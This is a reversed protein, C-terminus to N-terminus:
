QGTRGGSANVFYGDPTTENSYMSGFPRGAGSAPNLYYWVGGIQLWGVLMNGNAPDLYYWRGDTDQYWGVRMGSNIDIYYWLGTRADLVWGNKAYGDAGFAWWANNIKVWSIYEQGASTTGAPYSGNTYRYWWKGSDSVWAGASSGNPGGSTSGGGSSGGSGSGGGSSGGSSSGGGSSGGSSSGCKVKYGLAIPSLSYVKFQIGESTAQIEPVEIEGAHDGTTFMHAVVFDYRASSTGSPYPLTVTIGEDPFQDEYVKQWNGGDDVSYNLTVDYILIHNETIGAMANQISKRMAEEIKATTNLDPNNRLTEPVESIGEKQETKFEPTTIITLIGELVTVDYNASNSTGTIPYTGVESDKGATTTLTVSLADIGDNGVLVGAAPTELTLVPNSNGVFKLKDEAKVTVPKKAVTVDVSAPTSDNHNVDGKRVATVKVTGAGIITAQSGSISLVKNGEPVSFEIQGSGSGGAAKLEFSADGYTKSDVAEMTMPADQNIKQIRWSISIPNSNESGDAEDWTNHVTDKLAIEVAYDGANTGKTGGTITMKNEDFGALDDATVEQETGNYTYTKGSVLTPKPVRLKLTTLATSDSVPEKYRDSGVVRQFFYYTTGPQLNTFLTSTQWSLNDKSDTTNMAYQMTEFNGNSDLLKAEKLAIEYQSVREAEPSPVKKQYSERSLEPGNTFQVGRESVINEAPHSQIFTWNEPDKNVITDAGLFLWDENEYGSVAGPEEPDFPDNWTVDVAYWKDEQELYVYNWMHPGPPDISSSAAGGDVLVCPIELRDCLVKLARAYAECVPGATGIRGDLASTCEWAAAPALRDQGDAVYSNYENHKNLWDNLQAVQDATNTATVTSLINNVDNNREVIDSRINGASLYQDDRIDFNKMQTEPDEHVHTVFYIQYDYTTKGNSTTRKGGIKLRSAGNLWFVEPHDRDFADLATRICKAIYNTESSSLQHDLDTYECAIIANFVSTGDSSRLTFANSRSFNSDDILIDANGDNDSGEVLVDYFDRAYDPLIVRDIWNVPNGSALDIQGNEMSMTMLAPASTQTSPLEINYFWEEVGDELAEGLVEVTVVPLTVFETSYGKDKLEAEFTYVGAENENYMLEGNDASDFVWDVSVEYWEEMVMELLMNSSSAIQIDSDTEVRVNLTDPLELEEEKTGPTVQQKRVAEPLEEIEWIVLASSNETVAAKPSIMGLNATLTVTLLLALRRKWERWPLHEAKASGFLTGM